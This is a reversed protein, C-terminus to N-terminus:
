GSSDSGDSLHLRPPGWPWHKLKGQAGSGTRIGMGRPKQSAHGCAAPMEDKLGNCGNPGMCLDGIFIRSTALTVGTAARQECTWKMWNYGRLPPQPEKRIDHLLIVLTGSM